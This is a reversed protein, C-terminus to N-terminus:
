WDLSMVGRVAVCNMADLVVYSVVELGEDIRVNNLVEM